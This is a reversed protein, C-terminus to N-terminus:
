EMFVKVKYVRKSKPAPILNGEIRKGDVLMYKVGRCRRKRNFIEIDYTAGRFKRRVKFSPWKKPICPDVLLGDYDPRIGLIYQSIAVLNWAASGTLWSNRAKGFEPHDRGSIFQSYIYGEAQHIDAIRNRAAPCTKKYIEFARDGRGLMTEAIMAWPNAHCFIGGNEKLGRAFTGIAGIEVDFKSYAPGMLMIGHKTDLHKKVMDMCQTLRKKDAINAMVAWSQTNLFIKGEKYKDAGIPKDSDTFMRLYWKGDWCKKNIIEILKERKIKYDQAEKSKGLIEALKIFEDTAFSLFQAVWVSEARGKGVPTNLCDNWDAYGLLPIGHSGVKKFSYNIARKLHSYISDKGGDAFKVEEKLFKVDGTEKIYKSVSLILWLHDDSYGTKDGRKTLPSYQHYASGAQFQNAALDKIRQKVKDQIVHLVGIVDQNSDRFGMGRGIGSEYFSASRSWNFTTRCQYQNWINIMTNADRDPTQVSLNGLYLSWYKKLEALAKDVNKISKYKRILKNAKNLKDTVGLIFIFSKAEESKLQLKIWHSGIPNGGHAESNSASGKEVCFPFSEDRYLGIFKERDCDFGELPESCSFYALDGKEVPFQKTDHIIAGGKCTAKAINLTYQFDNMDSVAQWLCFEVYSFISLNRAIRGQNRITLSWIEVNENLPVFYVVESQIGAYKSKITTYGLGHRCEYKFKKLDKRVPQWSNSWYDGTKNDRIYIYRGPRDYPLNNYRYRLIRRNRPDKHFSYGGANNSIMACYEQSGLYNIWPTPTNPRTIVYEKNKNDFYGYQM